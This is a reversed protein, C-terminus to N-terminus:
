LQERLKLTTQLSGHILSTLHAGINQNIIYDNINIYEHAMSFVYSNLIVTRRTFLKNFDSLVNSM